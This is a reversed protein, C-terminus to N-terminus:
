ESVMAAMAAIDERAEMAGQIAVTDRHTALIDMIVVVMAELIGVIAVEMAAVM